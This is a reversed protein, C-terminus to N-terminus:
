YACHVVFLCFISPLISTIDIGIKSAGSKDVPADESVETTKGILETTEITAIPLDVTDCILIRPKDDICGGSNWSSEGAATGDCDGDEYRYSLSEGGTTCAQYSKLEFDYGDCGGILHVTDEWLKATSVDDYCDATDYIRAIAYDCGNGTGCRFSYDGSSIGRSTMLESLTETKSETGLCEQNNYYKIVVESADDKCTLLISSNVGGISVDTHCLGIPKETLVDYKDQYADMENYRVYDCDLTPSIPSPTTSTTIDLETTMSNIDLETTMSTIDLETTMSTTDVPAFTVPSTTVPSPTIPTPTVPAATVPAPTIPGPTVPAPTIPALTIPAPTIPAPTVPAPTIPAATIPAATIPAPTVPAPTVPAPTIPATPLDVTDCILIRPKDDVCGGSNWSSEGAATGDCDGDEYRYSLSQGGTTCAQYSKLEFDYGDCGGILHVTDEWLKATSVDDYCDATDYIRAIAYDCGNGTGCRFSYDGSSIGRSTMLESLTETKSETGLCEQNNYYKIVVESADDKCTLLISSNVGGISVDTHCLGIPKETLVDYKDNYAEIENYRVYDCDLTPSIPSPTTMTTIDLATTITTTAPETTMSVSCEDVSEVQASGCILIRPKENICGGSNWSSEGYTGNCDGNEFTYSLSQGGTTCAQYSKLEFDYGDCGGILHVTDNWLKATSVEDSCDATDYLREIAYDCGNGTGCTFSYDEESIGKNAMLQSLTEVNSAAGLCEQNDYYNVEVGCGDSTCTLLISSNIGGISVDTHCLGIPKETIVDYKDQYADMQDYQVYDCDLALSLPWLSFWLILKMSM